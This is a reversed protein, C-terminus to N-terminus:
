SSAVPLVLDQDYVGLDLNLNGPHYQHLYIDVTAKSPLAQLMFLHLTPRWVCIRSPELESVDEAFSGKQKHQPWSSYQRIATFFGKEAM